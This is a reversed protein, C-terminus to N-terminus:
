EAEGIDGPDGHRVVGAGFRKGGPKPPMAEPAPAVEPMPARTRMRPAPRQRQQETKAKQEQQRQKELRRKEVQAASEPQTTGQALLGSQSEPAAAGPAGAAAKAHAPVGALLLAAAGLGLAGRACCKILWQM